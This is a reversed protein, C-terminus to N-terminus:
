GPAACPPFLAGRILDTLATENKTCAADLARRLVLLKRVTDADGNDSFMQSTEECLELMEELSAM